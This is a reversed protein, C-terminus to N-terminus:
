VKHTQNGGFISLYLPIVLKPSTEKFRISFRIWGNTEKLTERYKRIMEYCAYKLSDIQYFDALDLRDFVNEKSLSYHTFLPINRSNSSFRYCELTEALKRENYEMLPKIQYKHSINLLAVADREVAYYDEPVKKNYM